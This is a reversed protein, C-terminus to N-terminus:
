NISDDSNCLACMNEGDEDQVSFESEVEDEPDFSEGCYDCELEM